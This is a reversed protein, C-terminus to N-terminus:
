CCTAASCRVVRLSSCAGPRAGGWCNGCRPLPANPWTPTCRATASPWRVREPKDFVLLWAFLWIFGMSGAAFFGARWGFGSVVAAIAVAGIAPGAAAGAGFVANALGRESAPFWERIIRNSAPWSTSEGMGMVIRTLAMFWFSPAM